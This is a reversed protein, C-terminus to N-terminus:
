LLHIRKVSLNFRKKKENIYIYLNLKLTLTSLSLSTSVFFFFVLTRFFVTDPKSFKNHEFMCSVFSVIYKNVALGVV